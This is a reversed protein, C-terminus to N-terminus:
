LDTVTGGFTGVVEQSLASVQPLNEGCLPDTDESNDNNSDSPLDPIIEYIIDANINGGDDDFQMIARYERLTIFVVRGM